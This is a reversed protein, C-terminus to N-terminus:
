KSIGLLVTAILTLLGITVLVSQWIRNEITQKRSAKAARQEADIRTQQEEEQTDRIEQIQSIMQSLIEATQINSTEASAKRQEAEAMRTEYRKTAAIWELRERECQLERQREEPSKDGLGYEPM